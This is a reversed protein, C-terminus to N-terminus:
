PTAVRIAMVYATGAVNTDKTTAVRLTGGAAITTYDGDFATARVICGGDTTKSLQATIANVGNMLQIKDSVSGPTGGGVFWFDIVKVRHTMTIDNNASADEVAIEFIVPIGGVANDSAVNAVNSGELVSDAVLMEGDAALTIDGSVAVEDVGYAAGSTVFIKGGDAETASAMKAATVKKAAITLAGDGGLTADGSVAVEDIGSETGTSVFINGAVDAAESVLMAKGVKKAGIATVGANSVTVDGSLTQEAAAGDAGGILVKGEALSVKAATVKKAGITVAGTRAITADGSMAVAAGEDSGDGVIIYTDTLSIKSPALGSDELTVVGDADMSIAGSLTKEAIANGAQTVLIKGAAESYLNAAKVKKAGIATVGANTITVDGSPTVATAENSANGVLVEGSNLSIDGLTLADLEDKIESFEHAIKDTISGPRNRIEKGSPATYVM